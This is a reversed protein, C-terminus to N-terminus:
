GFHDRGGPGRTAQVQPLPASETGGRPYFTTGAIVGEELHFVNGVSQGRYAPTSLGRVEFILQTQGYDFVAIQTNPTEGRDAPGFRGGLSIVSRPLTAGPIGWRAIDMEHVGQNGIDGNGFDWFWHWRYHVLNEHYDRRPAPGTWLNFDL